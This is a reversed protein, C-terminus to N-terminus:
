LQEGSFHRKRCQFLFFINLLKAGVLIPSPENQFPIVHTDVVIGLYGLWKTNKKKKLEYLQMKQLIKKRLTWIKKSFRNQVTFSSKTYNRISQTTSFGISGDM